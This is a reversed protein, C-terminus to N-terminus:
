PKLVSALIRSGSAQQEDWVAMADGTVRWFAVAPQGANHVGDSFLAGPQGWDRSGSSRRSVLVADVKGLFERWALLMNGQDDIAPAPDYANGVDDGDFAHPSDNGSSLGGKEIFGPAVFIRSHGSEVQQPWAVVYHGDPNMALKPAGVEAAPSGFAFSYLSWRKSITAFTNAYVSKQGADTHVWAVAADGASSVGVDVNAFTGYNLTVTSDAEFGGSKFYRAAKVAGTGSGTPQAWAVFGNGDGNLAISPTDCQDGAPINDLAAPSSWDAIGAQANWRSSMVHRKAAPTGSQEEQLWVVVTNGEVDSAIRPETAKGDALELLREESWSGSNPDYRSVQINVHTGDDIQWVAWANGAGDVALRPQHASGVSNYEVRFPDSWGSSPSYSSSWIRSRAGDVQEWVALARGSGDSIVAVQPATASAGASRSAPVANSWGEAQGIGDVIEAGGAGADAAGGSDLTAGGDGLAGGVGTGDV